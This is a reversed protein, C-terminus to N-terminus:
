PCILQDYQSAFLVFDRDDVFGDLDLDAPCTAPANPCLLQEYSQAFIAFDMDEVLGDRNLDAGCIVTLVIASSMKPTGCANYVRVRYSGADDLAPNVITLTASGTGSIRGGESVATGNRIWEYFTSNTANVTFTATQSPAVSGGGSVSQITPPECESNPVVIAATTDTHNPHDGPTGFVWTSPEADSYFQLGPNLSAGFLNNMVTLTRPTTDISMRLKGQLLPMYTQPNALYPALDAPLFSAFSTSLNTGILIQGPSTSTSLFTAGGDPALRVLESVSDGFVTGVIKQQGAFRSFVIANGVGNTTSIQTGLDFYAGVRFYVSGGPTVGISSGWSIGNPSVEFKLGWAANAGICASTLVAACGFMYILRM